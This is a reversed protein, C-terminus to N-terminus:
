GTLGLRTRRIGLEYDDFLRASRTLLASLESLDAGGTRLTVQWNWGRVTARAATRLGPGPDELLDVSARLEHIGGRGRLLRFAARRVHPPREPALRDTLHGLDLRGAVQLLSLSAERTVSASPDDLLPLLLADDTADDLRRLGAVAAARVSGVPHDLLTRLLLADARKACEAFGTVAYPSLRERDTVLALCHAYPDAGAQSVLWRACARVLSSRDPLHRAAEDSRGARRLATVGAARVMPQHGALLTDVAEDDADGAAMATLAADTWLRSAVPDTEAAARRALERVGFLGADLTLRAAFRRTPLDASDLLAAVATDDDATLGTLRELLWAGQDRRELRLALPTLTHLTGAPDAALAQGLLQRARERVPGVWDTTRIAILELPAREEGLAAARVYGSAHCLRVELASGVPLDHYRVLLRAHQEFALWAEPGAGLLLPRRVTRGELLAAAAARGTAADQRPGASM